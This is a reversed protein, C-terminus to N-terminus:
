GPFPFDRQSLGKHLHIVHLLISIPMGRKWTLTGHSRMVISLVMPLNWMLPISQGGLENLEKSIGQLQNEWEVKVCSLDDPMM